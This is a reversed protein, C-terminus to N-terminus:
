RLGVAIRRLTVRVADRDTQVLIMRWVMLMYSALLGLHVLISPTTSLRPLLLAVVTVVLAIAILRIVPRWEYRIYWLRQSFFHTLWFRTGLSAVVTFAAGWALYKPILVFYGIMAVIAAAWNAVTWYSTRETIMIGINFFTGWAQFIYAAVIVPVYVSAAHFGPAAILRLVDGVFLCIGVAATILTVNMYKFVRSYIIDRDSRKAVAFRQPDWVMELPMYGIMGVLFGFQYALGYLGVAATDGAQNLFYRDGFTFTFTAIQMVVLPVGFRLFSTAVPWSFKIKVIGLMRIVLFGGVLMNTIVASLLVGAVGMDFQILLVLNLGLNLALRTLSFSVFRISQQKLQFLASPVTLLSECAMGIAALRIYTVFRGQEHFVLEAITGAMLATAVAVLAFTVTLLVVATSLVARKEKDTSAKHYFHFIGYAIRSGAFISLVELFMSILQLVGYDSPTLLRTYVPLMLFAVAKTLLMGVAYVASHRGFSGLQFGNADSGQAAKSDVDSTRQTAVAADDEAPGVVTQLNSSISSATM